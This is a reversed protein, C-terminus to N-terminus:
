ELNRLKEFGERDGLDQQEALKEYRKTVVRGVTVMEGM